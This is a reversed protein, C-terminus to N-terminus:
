LALRGGILPGGGGSGSPATIDGLILELYPRRTTTESFNNTDNGSPPYDTLTRTGYATYQGFPYADFDSAAGVEAYVLSMGSAGTTALGIAYETGATLTPLTSATFYGEMLRDAGVAAAFDDVDYSPTADLITISGSVPNSYLTGIFSNAGTNPTTGVFRFGVVSYTSCFDTPITFTACLETTSGFAATAYLNKFPVGYPLTASKVAMTPNSTTGRTWSTGNHTLPYPNGTRITFRGWASAVGICNSADTAATREIVLAYNVGRSLSVSNALAMWVWANDNANSPTFAVSAPSGGGLYTGDPLGASIGQIGITYSNSAPTGTTTGQRYGVHTITDTAGIIPFSSIM